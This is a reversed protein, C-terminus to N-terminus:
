NTENENSSVKPSFSTTAAFIGLSPFILMQTELLRTTKRVFGLSIHQKHSCLKKTTTLSAGVGFNSAFGCCDHDL